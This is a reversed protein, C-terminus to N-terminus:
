FRPITFTPNQNQMATQLNDSTDIVHKAQDKEKKNELALTEAQLKLGTAQARLGQNLVHLMIATTEATLKQAGGPSVQHSFQKITEGIDDIEKTYNYISNNLTIAEAIGQDTNQQLKSDKSPVVIGYLSQLSQLSQDINQWDGYIGPGGNPSITNALNMADNIGNNIDRLMNFTDQGTSLIQRLQALQQIANALIQYLAANEEGFISGQAPMALLIM